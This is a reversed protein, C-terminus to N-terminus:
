LRKAIAKLLQRLAPLDPLLAALDADTQAAALKRLPEGAPVAATAPLAANHAAITQLWATYAARDLLEDGPLTMDVEAVLLAQTDEYYACGVLSRGAAAKNFGDTRKIYTM